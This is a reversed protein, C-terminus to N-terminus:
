VVKRWVVVITNSASLAAGRIDANSPTYLDAYFQESNWITWELKRNRHRLLM